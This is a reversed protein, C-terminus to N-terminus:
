REAAASRSRRFGPLFHWQLHQIRVTSREIAGWDTKRSLLCRKGGPIREWEASGSDHVTRSAVQNWPRAMGSDRFDVLRYSTGRRHYFNDPRDRYEGGLFVILYPPAFSASNPDVQYFDDPTVYITTDPNRIITSKMGAGRVTGVFGDVVIRGTIYTGRTLQLVAGPMHSGLDFACQLNATDDVNTPLVTITRGNQRVYAGVCTARAIGTGLLVVAVTVHLITKFQM